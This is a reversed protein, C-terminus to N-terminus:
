AVEDREKSNRYATVLASERQAFRRGEGKRGGEKQRERWLM